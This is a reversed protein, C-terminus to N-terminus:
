VCWIGYIVGGTSGRTGASGFLPPMPHAAEDGHCGTFTNYFTTERCMCRVQFEVGRLEVREPNALRKKKKLPSPVSSAVPRHLNKKRKEQHSPDVSLTEREM